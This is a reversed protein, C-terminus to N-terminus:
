GQSIVLQVDGNEQAVREVTWGQLKYQEAEEEAVALAYEQVLKQAGQGGVKQTLQHDIFDFILQYGEHGPVKVLGMEYKIGPFRVAHECKGYDKPNIGLRYAADAANYDNEWSQWWRYTKQNECFEGGLAQAARKFAPLNKILVKIAVVHSM